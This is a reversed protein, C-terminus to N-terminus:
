TIKLWDIGWFLVIISCYKSREWDLTNTYFAFQVFYRCCLKTFFNQFIQLSLLLKHVIKLLLQLKYFLLLTNNLVLLLSLHFWTRKIVSTFRTKFSQLNQHSRYKLFPVVHCLNDISVLISQAFYFYIRKIWIVRVCCRNWFVLRFWLMCIIWLLLRQGVKLWSRITQWIIVLFALTIKHLRFSLCNSRRNRIITM